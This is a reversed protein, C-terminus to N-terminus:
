NQFELNVILGKPAITSVSDIDVRLIDGTAINDNATDIAGSGTTAGSAITIPTTLMDVAQTVNYIQITTDGTTGATLVTANAISLRDGNYKAPVQIYYRGDGITVDTVSDFCFAQMFRNAVNEAFATSMQSFYEVSVVIEVKDGISHKQQFSNYGLMDDPVISTNDSDLGFKLPVYQYINEQGTSSRDEVLTPEASQNIYIGESNSKRAGVRCIQKGIDGTDDSTRKLKGVTQFSTDGVAIDKYLTVYQASLPTMFETM